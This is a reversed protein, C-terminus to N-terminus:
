RANLHRDGFALSFSFMDQGISLFRGAIGQFNSTAVPSLKVMDNLGVNVLRLLACVKGVPLSGGALGARLDSQITTM